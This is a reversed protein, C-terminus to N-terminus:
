LMNYMKFTAMRAQSGDHCTMGASAPIWYM